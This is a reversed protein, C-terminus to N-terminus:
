VHKDAYAEEGCGPGEAGERGGYRTEGEEAESMYVGGKGRCVYTEALEKKVAESGESM